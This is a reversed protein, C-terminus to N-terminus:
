PLISMYRKELKARMGSLYLQLEMLIETMISTGVFGAGLIAMKAM